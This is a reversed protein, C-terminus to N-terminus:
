EQTLNKNNNQIEALYSPDAMTTQELHNLKNMVWEIFKPTVHNTNEQLFIDLAAQLEKKDQQIRNIFNLYPSKIASGCCSCKRFKLETIYNTSFCESFDSSYYSRRISMAKKYLLIRAYSGFWFDLYELDKQAKLLQQRCDSLAQNPQNPKHKLLMALQALYRKALLHSYIQRSDGDATERSNWILSDTNNTDIKQIMEGFENQIQTLLSKSTNLFYCDGHFFCKIYNTISANIACSTLILAILFTKQLKKLLM